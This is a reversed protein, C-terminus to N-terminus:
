EDLLRVLWWGRSARAGKARLPRMALAANAVAYERRRAARTGVWCCLRRLINSPRDTIGAAGGVSSGASPKAPKSMAGTLVPAGATVVEDKEKTLPLETAGGAGAADAMGDLMTGGLPPLATDEAKSKRFPPPAASVALLLEPVLLPSAAAASGAASGATILLLAAPKTGGGTIGMASADGTASADLVPSGAATARM